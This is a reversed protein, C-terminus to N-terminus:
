NAFDEVGTIENVELRDSAGMKCLIRHIHNMVTALLARIESPWAGGAGLSYAGFIVVERMQRPTQSQRDRRSRRDVM